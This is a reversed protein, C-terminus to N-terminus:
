DIELKALRELDMTMEAGQEEELHRFAWGSIQIDRIIRVVLQAIAPVGSIEFSWGAPSFHSYRNRFEEHIRKLWALEADSIQIGKSNFSGGQTNPKRIEKLLEPLNLLKTRPRVASPNSRSEEFYNIWEGTNKKTVAGIPGATSTLHCVCAGQLAAHLALIVWKWAQPDEEVFNMCRLAHRISCAVDEAEDMSVWVEDEM